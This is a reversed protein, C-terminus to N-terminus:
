KVMQHITITLPSSPDLLAKELQELELVHSSGREYPM